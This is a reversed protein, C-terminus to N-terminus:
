YLSLILLLFHNKSCILYNESSEWSVFVAGLVSFSSTIINLHDDVAVIDDLCLHILYNMILKFVEGAYSVLVVCLIYCLTM